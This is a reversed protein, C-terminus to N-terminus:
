LCMMAACGCYFARAKGFYSCRLYLQFFIYTETGLNIFKRYEHSSPSYYFIFQLYKASLYEAPLLHAYISVIDALARRAQLSFAATCSKCMPFNCMLCVDLEQGTTLSHSVRVIHSRLTEIKWEFFFFFFDWLMKALLALIGGEGTALAEEIGPGRSSCLTTTATTRRRCPRPGAPPRTWGRPSRRPSPSRERGAPSPAPAACRQAQERRVPAKKRRQVGVCPM